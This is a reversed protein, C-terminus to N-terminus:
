RGRERVYGRGGVDMMGEGETWIGSVDVIGEGEAVGM